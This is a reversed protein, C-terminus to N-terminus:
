KHLEINNYNHRMMGKPICYPSYNIKSSLFYLYKRIINSSILIDFQKIIQIDFLHLM